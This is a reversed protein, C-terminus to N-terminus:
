SDSYALNKLLSCSSCFLLFCLIGDIFGRKYGIEDGRKYGIEDGRKYGIEDGRKYGRDAALKYLSRDEKGDQLFSEERFSMLDLEFQAKEYGQDASKKLWEYAKKNDQLVGIGELYSYGVEYQAPAYGRDASQKFWNYAKKNDQPVDKGDRYMYGVKCLAQAYRQDATLKRESSLTVRAKLSGVPAQNKQLLPNAVENTKEEYDTLTKGPISDSNETSIQSGHSIAAM